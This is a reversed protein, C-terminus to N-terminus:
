RITRKRVAEVVRGALSNAVTPEDAHLPIGLEYAEEESFVRLDSVGHDAVGLLHLEDGVRILAVSRGTGLPLNAVQELGDGSAGTVAGAAKTKRVVWALAYIVGIVVILVIITRIVSGGISSGQAPTTTTSQLNLKKQQGFENALDAGSTSTGAAAAVSPLAWLWFCACAVLAGRIFTIPKM